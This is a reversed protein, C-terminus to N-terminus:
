RSHFTARFDRVEKSGIPHDVIGVRCVVAPPLKGYHRPFRPARGRWFSHNRGTRIPFNGSRSRPLLTTAFYAV